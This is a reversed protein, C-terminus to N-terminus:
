QVIDYDVGRQWGLDERLRNTLITEMQTQDLKFSTGYKSGAMINTNTKGGPPTPNIKYYGENPEGTIYNYQDGLGAFHLTEHAAWWANDNSVNAGMTHSWVGWGGQNNRTSISPSFANESGVLGLIYPNGRVEVYHTNDPKSLLHNGYSKVVNASWRIPYTKQDKLHCVKYPNAQELLKLGLHINKEINAMVPESKKREWPSWLTIGVEMMIHDEHLRATVYLGAPDTLNVPNSEVNEYLNLGEQVPDRITWVGMTPNYM